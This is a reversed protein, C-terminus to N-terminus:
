KYYPLWRKIIAAARGDSQMKGLATNAATLLESDSKRVAWAIREQTLLIPVATLGAAESVSAQWLVIPSDCIFLDIKKKVLAKAADQPSAFEKRKNRGFEQQVLFDGTTAKLVGITGTPVIPFGMVYKNANERRVLTIQGVTLYPETFNVRLSRAPTVSMSSMIIDTKGDVLTQIQDEWKVEVLKVPRGLEEGLLKAFDAELGVLKGAEKYIMPAYAVTVGVRLTAPPPADAAGPNQAFALARTLFLLCVWFSAQHRARM